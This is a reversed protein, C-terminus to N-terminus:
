QIKWYLSSIWPIFSSKQSNKCLLFMMSFFLVFLCHTFTCVSLVSVDNLFVFLIYLTICNLLLSSQELCSLFHIAFIQMKYFFFFFVYRSMLLQYWKSLWCNFISHEVNEWLLRKGLTAWSIHDDSFHVTASTEALEAHSQEVCGLSGCKHKGRSWTM